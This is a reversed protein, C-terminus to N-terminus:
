AQTTGGQDVAESHFQSGRLGNPWRVYPPSRSRKIGMDVYRVRRVVGASCTGAM